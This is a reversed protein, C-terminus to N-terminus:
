AVRIYFNVTVNRPRTELGASPKTTTWAEGQWGAGQAPEGYNAFGVKSEHTHPGVDDAQYLGIDLDENNPTGHGDKRTNNKGRLFVGQLDPKKAVNNPNLVKYYANNRMLTQLAGAPVDKGDALEWHEGSPTQRKFDPESLISAIISGVPLAM